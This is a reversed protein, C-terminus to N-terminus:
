YARLTQFVAAIKRADKIGPASEVGSNFDLGACGLQAAEVCNDAGLGGALLVNNLTQGQLLSWDFRQGTGGNGNDFVYRDVHPWDRAPLHGEIRLAKWIQVTAPLAARLDAVFAPTEDGHLQVASLSLASVQTVIDSVSANRFVGVYRLPAAAMVSQATATDIQRPSGEAFILGGFIAGAEYAARADEARTLGCVKNSGLTVRRVAATLDTEEMLSSGILFGNAFHSLERIDAYSNIGSESIVTVGHSLRPALQRTRNLDISLDRLDRNNIGVVKAQLAIARELEEENSVETLIGMKLSHAVAALQRYQEDDLVSLMLLIADAQYYRALYIQYPDIIFDKCLVPQTIAASVIPLFAFDGQFYKEDTLVSVASAYHRYVGAIAAPDFDERIVGKSPSAKKCELIFATRAGQLADYFHRSSPEISNQFTSLPQQQQRAEVWIAKDQVIKELVTGKM